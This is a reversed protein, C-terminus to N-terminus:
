RTPNTIKPFKVNQLRSYMNYMSKQLHINLNMKVRAKINPRDGYDKTSAFLNRFSATALHELRRSVFPQKFISTKRNTWLKKEYKRQRSVPESLENIRDSCQFYFADREVERYCDFNHFLNGTKSHFRYCVPNYRNDPPPPNFIFFKM